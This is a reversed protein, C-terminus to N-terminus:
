SRDRTYATFVTNGDILIEYYVKWGDLNDSKKTGDLFRYNTILYMADKEEGAIEVRGRENEPLLRISQALANSGRTTIRIVPRQDNKLIYELGRMNTLGWYDSEFYENWNRPAIINFYLNQFPHNKIMWHTVSVVQIILATWFIAITLWGYRQMVAVLARLGLLALLIINPYVFYFQRWGDYITSRLLSASIVPVTLLAVFVLDLISNETLDRLRKIRTLQFMSAVVGACAFLGYVLPVTIVIWVPVYHWPLQKSSVYTGLYLNFNDWRFNSMNRFATLFNRVPHEWLWPWFLVVLVSMAVAYILLISVIRRASHRGVIIEFLLLSASVLPFAIGAIRVDIAAASAFAHVIAWKVTPARTLRVMSYTCIACFSMFVIDKNNYFSEAFMRPSAVYMIAAALGWRWSDFRLSAISYIAIAGALFAIYTLFHRLLYQHRSDDLGLLRELAFVPMDFFVGYDRDRYDSLPIDLKELGPDKAATEPFFRQMVYKYSIGGNDRSVPEDFSIGYDRFISIGVVLLLLFFVVVIAHSHRDLKENLIKLSINM